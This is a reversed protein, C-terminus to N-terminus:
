TSASAPAAAEPISTTCRTSLALKLHGDYSPRIQLKDIVEEVTARLRDPTQFKNEDYDVLRRLEQEVIHLTATYSTVADYVDIVLGHSAPEGKARTSVTVIVEGGNPITMGKRLVMDGKTDSPVFRVPIGEPRSAQVPASTDLTRYARLWPKELDTALTLSISSHRRSELIEKDLEDERLESQIERQNKKSPVGHLELHRLLFDFASQRPEGEVYTQLIVCGLSKQQEEANLRLEVSRRIRTLYVNIELAHLDPAPPGFISVIVEHNSIRTMRRVLLHERKLVRDEAPRTLRDTRLIKRQQERADRPAGPQREDALADPEPDAGFPSLGECPAKSWPLIIEAPARHFCRLRFRSSVARALDFRNAPHLLRTSPKKLAGALEEDLASLIEATADPPVLLKCTHQARPNYAVYRLPPIVSSQTESLPMEFATIHMLVGDIEQAQRLIKRGRALTDDAFLREANAATDLDGGVNVPTVKAFTQYMRDSKFRASFQNDRSVFQDTESDWAGEYLVLRQSVLYRLLEEHREDDLLHQATPGLARRLQDQGTISVSQTASTTARYVKFRLEREAPGLTYTEYVKVFVAEVVFGDERLTSAYLNNHNSADLPKVLLRVGQQYILRLDVNSSGPVLPMSSTPSSEPYLEHGAAAVPASVVEEPYTNDLTPDKQVEAAVTWHIRYEEENTDHLDVKKPAPQKGTRVLSYSTGNCASVLVDKAYKERGRQPFQSRPVTHSSSVDEFVFSGTDQDRRLQSLLGEVARHIGVNDAKGLKDFVPTRTLVSLKWIRILHGAKLHLVHDHLVTRVKGQKRRLIHYDRLLLKRGSVRDAPITSGITDRAKREFFRLTLGEDAGSVLEISVRVREGNMVFVGRYLTADMRVTGAELIAGHTVLQGIDRRLSIRRLLARHWLKWDGGGGCSGDCGDCRSLLKWHTRPLRLEVTESSAPNYLRLRLLRDKVFDENMNTGVTADYASMIFFSGSVHVPLRYLRRGPGQSTRIRLRFGARRDALEQRVKAHYIDRMATLGGMDVVQARSPVVEVRDVVFSLLQKAVRSEVADREGLSADANEFVRNLTSLSVRLDLSAAYEPVYAHVRLEGRAEEYVTITTLYGSIRRTGRFLRHLRRRCILRPPSRTGRSLFDPKGLIKRQSDSTTVAEVASRRSSAIFQGSASREIVLLAALRSYMEELTDPPHRTAHAASEISNPALLSDVEREHISTFLAVSNLADYATFFLRGCDHYVSVKYVADKSLTNDKSSLVATALRVACRHGRCDELVAEAIQVFATRWGGPTAESEEDIDDYGDSVTVVRSILETPERRSLAPAAGGHGGLYEGAFVVSTIWKVLAGLTDTDVAKKSTASPRTSVSDECESSAASPHHRENDLPWDSSSSYSQLIALTAPPLSAPDFKRFRAILEGPEALLRRASIWTVACVTRDPGRARTSRQLLVIAAELVLAHGRSPPYESQSWKALTDLSTARTLAVLSEAAEEYQAKLKGDKLLALDCDSVGFHERPQPPLPGRRNRTDGVVLIICPTPILSAKAFTLSDVFSTRSELSLGADVEAVVSKRVSLPAQITSTDIGCPANSAVVRVFLGPMERELAQVIRNKAARAVDRSILVLMPRSRVRPKENSIGLDENEIDKELHTTEELKKKERAAARVRLVAKNAAVRAKLRLEQHLVPLFHPPVFHRLLLAEEVACFEDERADEAREEETPELLTSPRAYKAREDEIAKAIKTELENSVRVLADHALISRQKAEQARSELDCLEEYEDKSLSSLSNGRSGDERPECDALRRVHRDGGHDRIWSKFLECAIRAAARAEGAAVARYRVEPPLEVLVNGQRKKAVAVDRRSTALRARAERHIIRAEAAAERLSPLRQAASRSGQHRSLEFADATEQDCVTVRRASMEVDDMRHAFDEQIRSALRATLAGEAADHAALNDKSVSAKGREAGLCATQVGFQKGQMRMRVCANDAYNVAYQDELAKTLLSRRRKAAVFKRVLWNPTMEDGGLDEIFDIQIKYVRLLTTVYTLLQVCAKSGKPVRSMAEVTMTPDNKYAEFLELAVRPLTLLRPPISAPGAALSRLRRLLRHARRLVKMAEVWSMDIREVAMSRRVGISSFDTVTEEEPYSTEIHESPVEDVADDKENSLLLVVIRLLGLVAAPPYSVRHDVCAHRIAEALECLDAPVLCRICVAHAADAAASRLQRRRKVQRRALMGSFLAGVLVAATDEVKKRKMAAVVVRAFSSRAHRQIVTAGHKLLRRWHTCKRAFHGRVGANIVLAARTYAKRLRTTELRALKGRAIRQIKIM